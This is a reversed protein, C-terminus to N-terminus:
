GAQEVGRSKRASENCIVKVFPNVPRNVKSDLEEGFALDM